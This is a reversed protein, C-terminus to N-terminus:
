ATSRARAAWCRAARSRHDSRGDLEPQPETEYLWNVQPNTFLKGYGLPIHIWPNRTAAAPKSCCCATAQGVDTLRNALVCGASGAGVIIYDFTNKADNTKNRGADAPCDLLVAGSCM